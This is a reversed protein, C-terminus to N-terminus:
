YTMFEWATRYLGEKEVYTLFDNYFPDAGITASDGIIVLKKRARTLAVNMRRYDSLFGIESKSNSRVMSIYIIDREQGQFSDITDITLDLEEDIFSLDLKERALRVQDKYPSIIGFSFKKLQPIKQNLQIIHEHVINLEDENKKSFYEPDVTEEFGCGATDIYELVAEGEVLSHYENNEHAKLKGEYFRHNSFNMIIKNMRYQIDLLNVNNQREIGKEILTIGLGKKRAENSKITPPLQFPDGALVIKSVKLIPIWCAPELGQTAEDIFVTKFKTNSLVKKTSGVLTCTIVKANSTLQEILRDELQNAWQSLERAQQYLQKREIREQHGFKRKFKSAEKRYSAAEIKVKKINKSEPHNAIKSELTHAIIKEDIRSINGIRLVELGTQAIKETLLDVAANSPATVLISDEKKSLEKIAAVITTTKGTGPPGHIISVDESSLISNVAANQSPNLSPIKVEQHDNQFKAEFKGLLIDRLEALRTNSTNILMSLANEMEKYSSEDFLLDIGTMSNNVWDPLDSSNLIIKMKNKDVYHVVGSKERDEVNPSNCFIKVIKGSRFAHNILDTKKRQVIIYARDGYTFGSNLTQVPYWTYGKKKREDLSLSEIRNKFQHFDEEKELKLLNELDKLEQIIKDPM